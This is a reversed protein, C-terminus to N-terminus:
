GNHVKVFDGLVEVEDAPVEVIENKMIKGKSTWVNNAICRVSVVAPAKAKAKKPTAETM